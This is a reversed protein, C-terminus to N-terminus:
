VGMKKFFRACSGGRAGVYAKEPGFVPNKSLANLSTLVDRQGIGPLGPVAPAVKM